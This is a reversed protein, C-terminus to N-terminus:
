LGPHMKKALDFYKRVTAKSIGMQSAVAAIAAEEDFATPSGGARFGLAANLGDLLVRTLQFGNVGREQAKIVALLIMTAATGFASAGTSEVTDFTKAIMQNVTQRQKEGLAMDADILNKTHSNPSYDNAIRAIQLASAVVFHVGEDTMARKAMLEPTAPPYNEEILARSERDLQLPHVKAFLQLAAIMLAVGAANPDEKVIDDIRSLIECALPESPAINKDM